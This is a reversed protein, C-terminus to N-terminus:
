AGASDDPWRMGGRIDAIACRVNARVVLSVAGIIDEARTTRSQIMKSCSMRRRARRPRRSDVAVSTLAPSLARGRGHRRLRGRRFRPRRDLGRKRLGLMCASPSRENFCLAATPPEPVALAQELAAIGGNRNTQAEVVLTPRGALGADDCAERFGGLREHYVVMDASGGLFALRRHGKGILHETALYAGRHNDPAM